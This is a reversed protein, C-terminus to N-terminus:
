IVRRFFQRAPAEDRLSDMDLKNQAFKGSEVMGIFLGEFRDTLKALQLLLSQGEKDRIPCQKWQEIVGDKLASMALKFAESDLVAEAEKGLRAEHIETKKM